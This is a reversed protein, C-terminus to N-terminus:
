IFNNIFQFSEGPTIALYVIFQLWWIIWFTMNWWCKCSFLKNNFLDRSPMRWLEFIHNNMSCTSVSRICEIQNAETYLMFMLFNNPSTYHQPVLKQMTTITWDTCPVISLLLDFSYYSFLVFQTLIMLQWYFTSLRKHM